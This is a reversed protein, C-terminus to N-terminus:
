PRGGAAAAPAAAADPAGPTAGAAPQPKQFSYPFTLRFDYVETRVGKGKRQTADQLIPEGFAEVRDLNDIFNAVASMNFASGRLLINSNNVDLSTLWLLEPLARSIEDMIQVPGRQNEKLSNIVSIKRELDAKKLKYAEVEKIVQELEDVEKQAVAIEKDKKSIKQNLLFWWGAAVLLGLVIAGVLMTNAFDGGGGGGGGSVMPARSKRAVAPRKGEAMLNIKIM